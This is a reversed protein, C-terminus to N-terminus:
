NPSLREIHDIVIFERPAKAPELQVGIQEDLAAFITALTLCASKTRM